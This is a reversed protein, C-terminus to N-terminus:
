MLNLYEPVFPPISMLCTSVDCSSWRLVPDPKLPETNDGKPFLLQSADEEVDGLQPPATGGAAMVHRLGRPSGAARARPGPPDLYRGPVAFAYLLFSVRLGRQIKLSCVAVSGSGTLQRQKRYM